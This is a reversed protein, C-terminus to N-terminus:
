PNDDLTVLSTNGGAATTNISIVRETMFRQLYNPGGAKPGTGSLKEGGFPQSGVIAGVQNRNIYINGCEVGNAVRYQASDIRSHLGCTLGYGTSNITDIVDNLGEPHYRIIHLIPGFHEKKLLGIDDIEWAKPTFYNGSNLNATEPLDFIEKAKNAKAMERLETIHEQLSKKANEDIVPGIDTEQKSPNGVILAESAGKIMAIFYDAMDEPLFLVRLASCRQGAARFASIIVDDAVQEALASSDVIMANQGGTEAIFPLIAGDRNALGRNVLQATSTGGTFAIGALQPAEVLAPGLDSGKGPALQLIDKPIGAKHALEVMRAAILSTQEAPKAIVANGCALAATVQGAFIALPFNWPSICVMVGRPAWNLRNSEGTVGQLIAPKTVIRIQQAYYRCFDIAERWEGVAEEMCKGAEAVLLALLEDRANTLKDALVELCKARMDPSNEAWNPQEKAARQMMKSIDAPTAQTITGIVQENNSPNYVKNASASCNPPAFKYNMKKISSNLNRYIDEIQFADHIDYGPSNSRDKGFIDKPLPIQPHVIPDTKELIDRPDEVLNAVPLADDQIRNVFSNNAGNELLRRVLYPLLDQHNGVPAYIRIRRTIQHYLPQGMGHLRQFEYDNEVHMNNTELLRAIENVAALTHANHTAFQPYFLDLDALLRKACALYSVDTSSKRTFVPYDKYGGEQSWKIESDWYAGKVLRVMIRRNSIKSLEALWDIVALARKQYAQVALGLGQWGALEPASVAAAFIDLSMDLRDAEEADVCLSVDYKKALKCLSILKESLIPVAHEAHLQDYRPYLASLKVSIGSASYVNHNSQNEGLQQIANEYSNYYKEADVATRAAEGLMDFSYTVNKSDSEETSRKMADNIDRGMVFQKGMISMAHQVAKRIVPEGMRSVMQGFLGSPDKKAKKDPLLKAIEAESATDLIKDAIGRGGNLVKGTLMLAWTSANVFLNDGKGVHQQWDATGIKDSILRDQTAADPIRLLAEALCMLAVGEKTSLGFENLFRDIGGYRRRSARVGQVLDTARSSIQSKEAKSVNAEKLLAKVTETEDARYLLRINNRLKTLDKSIKKMAAWM